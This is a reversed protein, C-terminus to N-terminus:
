RDVYFSPGYLKSGVSKWHNSWTFTRTQSFCLFTIKLHINVCQNSAIATDLSPGLLLQALETGLRRQGLGGKLWEVFAGIPWFNASTRKSWGSINMKHCNLLPFRVIEMHQVRVSEIRVLRTANPTTSNDYNKALQSRLQWARDGGQCSQCSRRCNSMMRYPPYKKRFQSCHCAGSLM